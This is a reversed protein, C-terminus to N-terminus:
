HEGTCLGFGVNSRLISDEVLSVLEAFLGDRGLAAEVKRCIYSVNSAAIGGFEHVLDVNRLGSHRRSMYVAIDRATNGHHGKRRVDEMSVGCAASTAEVIEEVSVMKRLRRLSPLEPDLPMDKLFKDKVWDVFRSDGLIAGAVAERTPDKLGKKLGDEM